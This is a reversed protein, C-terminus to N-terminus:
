TSSGTGLVQDIALALRDVIEGLEADSAIFPPMLLVHDASSGDPLGSSPYCLLGAAFAAERIRPAIAREPAFATKRTRDQTLEVARMLGRGRIDSVHPHAAFRDQLMSQLLEGKRRVQPLLDLRTIEEQVALAAACALAHGHASHGHRFAGTGRALAEHIHGSVLTAGLPAYGAALGKGLMVMDPQIDEQEFAHRTGTRGMGCMVEDLLLLVGHRDCIQRIRALYGRPPAVAGLTSGIVTEIAFAAVRSPGIQEITEELANATRLAYDEESEGTRQDRQPFCREIHKMHGSLLPAFNARRARNGGASLAGLSAGLYGDERGIIWEREPQGMELFYQRSLKLAADVAEAGSTTFWVAGGPLGPALNAALREMPENTLFTTHAFALADIQRHMAARVAPHNHGLASIGTGSSGDLYRRGDADILWAGAGGVATPLPRGLRRHFASTM